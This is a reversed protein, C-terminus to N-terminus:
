NAIHPLRCRSSNSCSWTFTGGLESRGPTTHRHGGAAYRQEQWPWIVTINSPVGGGLGCGATSHAPLIFSDGTGRQHLAATRPQCSSGSPSDDGTGPVMGVLDPFENASLRLDTASLLLRLWYRGARRKRISTVCWAPRFRNRDHRRPRPTSGATLVSCALCGQVFQTVQDAYAILRSCSPGHPDCRAPPGHELTVWTVAPLYWPDGPGSTTLVGTWTSPAPSAAARPQYDAAEVAREIPRDPLRIVAQLILCQWRQGADVPPTRVAM